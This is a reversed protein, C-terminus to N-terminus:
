KNAISKYLEAYKKSIKGGDFRKCNDFGGEILKERLFADKIIRVVGERISNIDFPDVLVAFNGAVEPMSWIDSTVVPRGVAQAEIIPLGFGEYTSAFLLMDAKKYEELLETSDINKYNEFSVKSSTLLDLDVKNLEGIVIFHCPIGILASIHRRLNKNESVGVHLIRPNNTNFVKPYKKFIPNIPCYIVEIKEPRCRTYKLLEKRTSESIAVIKISKKTPILYWLLWFLYKQIGKKRKLSICDLITLVTKSKKLFFTLFYEDGTVHNVDGQNMAANLMSLVRRWLGRSPFPSTVKILEINKPLQEWIYGYIGEVSRAGSRPFRIFGAVKIM